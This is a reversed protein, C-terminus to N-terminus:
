EGKNSLRLSLTEEALARWEKALRVAEEFSGCKKINFNKQTEKNPEFCFRAVISMPKGKFKRVSLSRGLENYKQKTAKYVNHSQTIQELNEIKNNLSNGDIHNIVLSTDISKHELLYVIRHALVATKGKLNITWYKNGQRGSIYGAPSGVPIRGYRGSPVKWSLGSPSLPDIQLISNLYEFNLEIVSAPKRANVITDKNKEILNEELKLAEQKTLNKEVILVEFPQDTFLKYWEKNRNSVRSPRKLSGSGVYRIIGDKDLHYYVCYDSRM